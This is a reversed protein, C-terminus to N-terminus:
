FQQLLMTNDCDQATKQIFVFQVYDAKKSYVRSLIEPVHWLRSHLCCNIILNNCSLLDTFEDTLHSWFCIIVIQKVGGSIILSRTSKGEDDICYAEDCLEVITYIIKLLSHATILYQPLAHNTHQNVKIRWICNQSIVVSKSLHGNFRTICM